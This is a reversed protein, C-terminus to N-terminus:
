NCVVASCFNEPNEDSDDCLYVMQKFTSNCMEELTIAQCYQLFKPVNFYPVLSHRWKDRRNMEHQVLNGFFVSDNNYVMSLVRCAFQKALFANSMFHEPRIELFATGWEPIGLGNLLTMMAFTQCFHNTEDMQTGNQYSDIINIGDVTCTFHTEGKGYFIAPQGPVMYRKPPDKPKPVVLVKINTGYQQNIYEIFTDFASGGMFEILLALHAELADEEGTKNVMPEVTVAVTFVKSRTSRAVSNTPNYTSRSGGKHRKIRKITKRSKRKISRRTM